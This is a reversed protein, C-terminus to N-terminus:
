NKKLSYLKSNLSIKNSEYIVNEDNKFTPIIQNKFSSNTKNSKISNEKSKFMDNNKLKIKKITEIM